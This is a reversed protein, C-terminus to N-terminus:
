KEKFVFYNIEKEQFTITDNFYIKIGVAFGLEANLPENNIKTLKAFNYGVNILYGGSCVENVRLPNVEGAKYCYKCKLPWTANNLCTPSIQCLKTYFSTEFEKDIYATGNEQINLSAEPLPNLNICNNLDDYGMGLIEGRINDGIERAVNYVQTRKNYKFLDWIGKYFAIIIFIMVFMAVLLELLTYGKKRKM